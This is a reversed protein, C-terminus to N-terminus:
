SGENQDSTVQTPSALAAQVQKDGDGWSIKIDKELRKKKKKLKRNRL